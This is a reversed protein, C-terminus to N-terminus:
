ALHCLQCACRRTRAAEAIAAREDATPRPEIGETHSVEGGRGIVVLDAGVAVLPPWDEEEVPLAGLRLGRPALVASLEGRAHRAAVTYWHVAAVAGPYHHDAIAVTLRNEDLDEECHELMCTSDIADLGAAEPACTLRALLWGTLVEFAESLLECRADEDLGLPRIPEVPISLLFRM